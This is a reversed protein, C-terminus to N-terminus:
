GSGRRAICDVIRRAADDIRRCSEAINKQCDNSNELLRDIDKTQQDNQRALDSLTSAFRDLSRSMEGQAASIRETMETRHETAIKMGSVAIGLADATKQVERHAEIRKEIEATLEDKHAEQLEGLKSWAAELRLAIRWLAGIALTAVVGVVGYPAFGRLISLSDAAEPVTPM